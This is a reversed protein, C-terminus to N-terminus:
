IFGNVTYSGTGTLKFVTTGQITSNTSNGMLLGGACSLSFGNYTQTSAAGGVTVLGNVTWADNLTLTGGATTCTLACTLTKGASTISTGTPVILTGATGAITMGSVFVIGSTLTLTSNFTLTGTYTGSATVSTCASAVNVTM